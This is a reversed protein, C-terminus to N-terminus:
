RVRAVLVKKTGKSAIVAAVAGVVGLGVLGIILMNNNTGPPPVPCELTGLLGLRVEHGVFLTCDQAIRAAIQECSENWWPAGMEQLIRKAEACAEPYTLAMVYPRMSLIEADYVTGM